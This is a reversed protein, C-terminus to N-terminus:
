VVEDFQFDMQFDVRHSGKDAGVIRPRPNKFFMGGSTTKGQFASAAMKYLAMGLTLGEHLPTYIELTMLGTHEYRDGGTATGINTQRGTVPQWLFKAWPKTKNAASQKDRDRNEPKNPWEIRVGDIVNSPDDATPVTWTAAPDHEWVALLAAVAQDYAEEQTAPM